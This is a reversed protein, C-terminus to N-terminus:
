FTDFKDSSSCSFFHLTTDLYMYTCECFKAISNLSGFENGVILHANKLPAIKKMARGCRANERGSFGGPTERKLKWGRCKRLGTEGNNSEITSRLTRWGSLLNYHERTRPVACRRRKQTYTHPARAVYTHIMAASSLVSM